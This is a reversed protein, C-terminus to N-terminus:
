QSIAKNFAIPDYWYCGVCSGRYLEDGEIQGKSYGLQKADFRQNTQRCVKCHQRKANNVAKSLPQFDSLKVKSADSLRPDDRRGDKHDIEIKGIGLVSCKKNSLKERIDPPIPKNIPQKKFGHLRVYDIANGKKHRQINFKKALAGDDRCWDGGNGMILPAYRGHFESVYVKRSFGNEKPEALEIFLAAKSNRRFM